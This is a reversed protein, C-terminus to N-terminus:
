HTSTTKIGFGHVYIM